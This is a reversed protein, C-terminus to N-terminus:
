DVAGTEDAEQNTKPRLKSSLATIGAPRGAGSNVGREAIFKDLAKEQVALTRAGIRVLPVEADLLARRMATGSSYGARKAADTM